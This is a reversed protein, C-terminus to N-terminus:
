SEGLRHLTDGYATLIKEAVQAATDVFGQSTNVFDRRGSEAVGSGATEAAYATMNGEEILVTM